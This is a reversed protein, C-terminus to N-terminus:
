GACARALVLVAIAGLALGLTRAPWRAGGAERWPSRAPSADAAPGRESAEEPTAGALAEAELEAESVSGLAEEARAVDAERVYIAVSRAVALHDLLGPLDHDDVRADIGEARLMTAVAEAEGRAAFSSVQM